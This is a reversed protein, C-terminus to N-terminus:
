NPLLKVIGWYQTKDNLAPYKKYSVLINHKYQLSSINKIEYWIIEIKVSVDAMIASFDPGSIIKEMQHNSNEPGYKFMRKRKSFDAYLDVYM